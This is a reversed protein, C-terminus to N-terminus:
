CIHRKTPCLFKELRQCWLECVFHVKIKVNVYIHRKTPCLFKELRQCWLECVFHVKIKVNVYIHRKTPCLFKELRQCWLECVFHVKIKVNLYTVSQLAYFRRLVNVDFNVYLIYRSKWMLMHSAKYPMSVEWSTSMLTWM